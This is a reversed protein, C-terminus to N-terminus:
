YGKSIDVLNISPTKGSIYEKLNPILINEVVRETYFETSGSTHPTIIVNEMEWFPSDTHLPETEFVDLGAGAITGGQLAEVLEEEVVIEGRGINIFFASSKMQKFQGAGFLHHTKKTHPLTIVVYDCKPLLLNLQDPTYMEDVNDAQKGSHRVGLVKMGFAKAIKATEKGIEGVGIIGITKEHMELGMHAHHWTHAQQNKVYTHIKRTLGLMLAFITESIPYAHVGNASTLTINKSQITELPLSDVGASWTQLWKLNSHPTLCHEELGNKWGAIIEADKAHKQYIEKDKSVILEWDPIVSEIQEIYKQDLNHTILMKKM